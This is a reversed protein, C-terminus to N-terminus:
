SGPPMSGTVVYEDLFGSVSAISQAQLLSGNARKWDTLIHFMNSCKFMKVSQFRAFPERKCTWLM